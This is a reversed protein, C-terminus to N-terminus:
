VSYGYERLRLDFEEAIWRNGERTKEEIAVKVAPSIALRASAAADFGELRLIKKRLARGALGYFASAIGPRELRLMRDAVEQSLRVNHRREELLRVGEAINIRLFECLGTAFRAPDERLDELAFVGVNARGLAEVFIQITRVYDLHPALEDGRAVSELWQETSPSRSFEFRGALKGIHRRKLKQFYLAEVLELPNRIGIIVQCGEFGDRLNRAIAKRVDLEAVALGEFSFLALKNPDIVPALEDAWIRRSEDPESRHVHLWFLENGLNFAADSVCRRLAPDAERGARKGLFEIESHKAFLGRQLTTTATKPLGVHVCLPHTM